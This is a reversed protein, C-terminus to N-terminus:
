LRLPPLYTKLHVLFHNNASYHSRDNVGDNAEIKNSCCWPLRHKAYDPGHQKNNVLIDQLLVLGVTKKCKEVVAANQSHGVTAAHSSYKFDGGRPWRKAIPQDVASDLSKKVITFQGLFFNIRLSM